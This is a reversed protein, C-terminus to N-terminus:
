RKEYIRGAEKDSESGDEVARTEVPHPGQSPELNGIRLRLDVTVVIEDSGVRSGQIETVLHEEVKKSTKALNETVPTEEAQRSGSLAPEIRRSRGRCVRQVLKQNLGTCNRM